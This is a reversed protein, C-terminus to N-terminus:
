LKDVVPAPLRSVFCGGFENATAWRVEARKIGFGPVGIGLTTDPLIDTESTASFGSASVNTLRVAVERDDPLLVTTDVAVARRPARPAFRAVRKLDLQM